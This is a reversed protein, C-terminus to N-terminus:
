FIYAMVPLMCVGIGLAYRVAYLYKPTDMNRLAINECRMFNLAAYVINGALFVMFLYAAARSEAMDYVSPLVTHLIELSNNTTNERLGFLKAMYTSRVLRVDFCWPILWVYMGVYCISTITELITNVYKRDANQVTLICQFPLLLIYWYPNTSCLIFFLAYSLFAIRVSNIGAKKEDDPVKLVYCAIYLIMVALLFVPIELKRFVLKQGFIVLINDLNGGNGDGMPFLLKLLIWPLFLVATHLCIRFVNKERYLLLAPFLFVALSKIPVAAAMFATFRWMDGKLYYDFAKLMFFLYIIDYQSTVFVSMFLISSTMFLLVVDKRGREDVHLTRCIDVLARVTFATFVLIITKAWAIALASEWINVHAAKRAIWLPLNWIAFIIYILFDYDPTNFIHYAATDVDSHCVEYFRFIDGDFLVDWFNVGFSTTILIDSYMFAYFSLVTFVAISGFLICQKKDKGMVTQAMLKM